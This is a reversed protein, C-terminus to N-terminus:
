SDTKSAKVLNNSGKETLPVWIIRREAQEMNRKMQSKLDPVPHGKRGKVTNLLSLLRKEKEQNCHGEGERFDGV